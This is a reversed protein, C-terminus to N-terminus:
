CEAKDQGWKKYVNFKHLIAERTEKDDLHINDYDGPLEIVKRPDAKCIAAIILRDHRWQEISKRSHIEIM